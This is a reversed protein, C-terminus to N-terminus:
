LQRRRKARAVADKRAEKEAIGKLEKRDKVSSLWRAAAKEAPESVPILVAFSGAPIVIATRAGGRIEKPLTIRGRDDISVVSM